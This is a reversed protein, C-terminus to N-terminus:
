KYFADSAKTVPSDLSSITENKFKFVEKDFTEFTSNIVFDDVIELAKDLDENLCVISIKLYDSRSDISVEIGLNELETAIQEATKTKTGQLLLNGLLVHAGDFPAKKDTTLYLYIACRPTDEINEIVVNTNNIELFNM